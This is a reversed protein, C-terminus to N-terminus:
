ETFFRKDKIEEKIKLLAKKEIRSVYSRSIHLKKALERQPLPVGNILGYRLTIIQYERDDLCNKIVEKFKERVAGNEVKDIVSEGEDSMLDILELENGDKDVGITDSLSLTNKHKKNARLLM